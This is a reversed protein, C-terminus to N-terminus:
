QANKLVEMKYVKSRTDKLMENKFSQVEPLWFIKENKLQKLPKLKGETVLAALRSRNIYLMEQVETSGLIMEAAQEKKM